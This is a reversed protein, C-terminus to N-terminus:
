REGEYIEDGHQAAENAFPPYTPRIMEEFVNAILGGTRALLVLGNALRWDWGMDSLTAGVSGSYNIVLQRGTAESTLAAVRRLVAVHVGAVGTEAAVAMVGEARPDSVKHLPNGIGPVRQRRHRFADVVSRAVAAPDADAGGGAAVAEQLLEAVEGAAAGRRTGISLLGAAVAGQFSEPARSIVIRAPMASMYTHDLGAILIADVVRLEGPTPFRGLCHHFVVAGFSSTRMLESVDQGRYVAQFGDHGGKDLIGSLETRMGMFM